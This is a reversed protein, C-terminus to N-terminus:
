FPDTAIKRLPKITFIVALASASIWFTYPYWAPMPESVVMGDVIETFEAIGITTFVYPLASVTLGLAALLMVIPLTNEFIKKMFEEM